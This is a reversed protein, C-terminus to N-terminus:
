TYYRTDRCRLAARRERYLFRRLHYIAGKKGKELPLVSAHCIGAFEILHPMRIVQYLIYFMIPANFPIFSALIINAGGLKPRVPVLVFGNVALIVSIYVALFLLMFPPVYLDYIIPPVTIVALFAVSLKLYWMSTRERNIIVADAATLVAALLLLGIVVAKLGFATFSYGTSFLHIISYASALSIVISVILFLIYIRDSNKEEMAYHVNGLYIVNEKYGM